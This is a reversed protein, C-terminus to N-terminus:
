HSRAHIAEQGIFGVVEERLREDEILPLAESLGQAMAREGEPLTLHMVNFIHTVLPEGPVYHMPVGDWDFHVDRPTIAIAEDAYPRPESAPEAASKARAM